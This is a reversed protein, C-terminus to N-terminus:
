WVFAPLAVSFVSTLRYENAERAVMGFQVVCDEQKHAKTNVFHELLHKPRVTLFSRM